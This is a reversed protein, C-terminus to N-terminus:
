SIAAPVLQDYRSHDAANRLRHYHEDHSPLLACFASTAGSLLGSTLGHGSTTLTLAYSAPNTPDGSAAGSTAAKMLYANAVASSAPGWSSPATLTSAISLDVNCDGVDRVTLDVGSTITNAVAGVSVMGLAWTNPDSGSVWAIAVTNTSPGLDM